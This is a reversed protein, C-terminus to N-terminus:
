KSDEMGVSLYENIKGVLNDKLVVQSVDSLDDYLRQIKKMPPKTLYNTYNELGMEIAIPHIEIVWEVIKEHDFDALPEMSLFTDFGLRHFEELALYRIYTSQANGPTPRNTELTTGLIIRRSIPDNLREFRDKFDLFRLPNKTQLLFRNGVGRNEIENLIKHIWEDPVADCFLDGTSCVFIWSNDRPFQTKLDKEVLIPKTFDEGRRKALSAAWCYPCSHSCGRCVTWTWGVSKFMRGKAKNLPM